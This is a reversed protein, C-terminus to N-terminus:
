VYRFPNQNLFEKRATLDFSEFDVANHWPPNKRAVRMRIPDGVTYGGDEVVACGIDVALILLHASSPM